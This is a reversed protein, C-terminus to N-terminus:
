LYTKEFYDSIPHGKEKAIRLNKKINELQNEKITKLWNEQDKVLKNESNYLAIYNLAMGYYGLGDDNQKILENAYYMSKPINGILGYYIVLYRIGYIGGKIYCRVMNKHNDIYEYIGAMNIYANEINAIRYYKIALKYNRLKQYLLGINFYVDATKYDILMLYKLSKIYNRRKYFLRALYVHSKLDGCNLNVSKTYYRLAIEENYLSTEAIVGINFACLHCGLKVGNELTQLGNAEDKLDYFQHLGLINHSKRHKQNCARTLLNICKEPNKNFYIASYYLYDGSFEMEDVVNNKFIEVIKSLVRSNKVEVFFEKDDLLEYLYKNQDDLIIPIEISKLFDIKFAINEM